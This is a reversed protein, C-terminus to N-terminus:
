FKFIRKANERLILRRERENLGADLYLGVSGGLSLLTQDSGFLLREPGLVPLCEKIHHISARSLCFETYVNPADAVVRAWNGDMSHAHIIVLGPNEKALARETQADGVDGAGGGIAWTSAPMFLVPKGRKGVEAMLRRVESSGTPQVTHSLEIECGAFGPMQYYMDMQACSLEIQHPNLEVYGRLEPHGEIAKAVAQNGAALDTRMAEYSSLVSRTVGFRKMRQIMASPDYGEDYIPWRWYGLHSHIDIIEEDFCKPEFDNLQPRGQLAEETIGLLRMANGGLIAAKDRAPLASELVQNLAKQLPHMPAGSGFLLRDAGVEQAMLDIAGVTALWNTEVYLHSYEKLLIIVEAMNNYNVDTLIVPLGSGQTVAAIEEGQGWASGAEATSFVLCVNRGRLKALVQKFFLSSVSWGQIRPFFRFARCGARLCRELEQEWGLYEHLDLTAAPILQPHARAAAITESNGVKPDYHVGRLSYTLAAAVSHGDLSAVLTGLSLDYDFETRHGFCTNVDIVYM